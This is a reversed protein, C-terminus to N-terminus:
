FGSGFKVLAMPQVILSLFYAPLSKPHQLGLVLGNIKGALM